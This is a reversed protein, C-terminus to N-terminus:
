YLKALYADSDFNPSSNVTLFYEDYVVHYQPSVHTSIPNYILLIASAHCNSIGVYVGLWSRPKWKNLTAGDQLEKRVVYTPTGFVRFDSLSWPPTQGTFAEYPSITKDKRISCNHFNVAHCLAFTWMHEPIITPWKAMAHLLITRARKTITGIFCEAIGNQWHAGVTCFTLNQQQRLCAEKFLQATYIGNDARINKIQVNFRASFEEFEMKSRVLESAAKSAHFTIYVFSTAHDVWFSVYYYRLKSASGRTTFPAGPTSSELGDSSLGEGLHTRNKSIQGTHTKHSLCRAKGFACASCVPDPELALKPDVKPFRGHRIWQNLNQFGEHACMKHLYLKQKQLKTLTLNFPPTGAESAASFCRLNDQFTLYSQIGPKTFL